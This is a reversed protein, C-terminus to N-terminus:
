VLLLGNEFLQKGQDARGLKSLADLVSQPTSM